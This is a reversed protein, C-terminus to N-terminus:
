WNLYCLGTLFDLIPTHHHQFYENLTIMRGNRYIGFLKKEIEYIDRIHINSITYNPVIPLADYLLLYTLYILVALAFRRSRDSIVYSLLLALYILVPVISISAIFIFWMFYILSALLIWILDKKLSLSTSQKNDTDILLTNLRSKTRDINTSNQNINLCNENHNEDNEGSIDLQHYILHQDDEKIIGNPYKEFSTSIKHRSQFPSILPSFLTFLLSSSNNIHSVKSSSEDFLNNISDDNTAKM